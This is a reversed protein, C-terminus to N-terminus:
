RSMLTLCLLHFSSSLGTTLSLFRIRESCLSRQYFDADITVFKRLKPLWSRLCRLTESENSPDPQSIPASTKEVPLSLLVESFSSMCALHLPRGKTTGLLSSWDLKARSNLLHHLTASAIISLWNDRSIALGLQTLCLLGLPLAQDLPSISDRDRDKGKDREIMQSESEEQYSGYTEMLTKFIRDMKLTLQQRWDEEDDAVLSQWGLTPFLIQFRRLSAIINRWIDCARRENGRNRTQLSLQLLSWLSEVYNTLLTAFPSDKSVSSGSSRNSLM